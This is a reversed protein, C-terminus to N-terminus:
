GIQIVHRSSSMGQGLVLQFTPLTLTGERAHELWRAAKVTMDHKKGNLVEALRHNEECCQVLSPGHSEGLMVMGVLLQLELPWSIQLNPLLKEEEYIHRQQSCLLRLVSSTRIASGVGVKYKEGLSRLKM